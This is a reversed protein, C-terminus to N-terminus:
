LSFTIGLLCSYLYLYSDVRSLFMFRERSLFGHEIVRDLIIRTTNLLRLDRFISHVVQMVVLFTTTNTIRHYLLPTVIMFILTRGSVVVARMRTGNTTM